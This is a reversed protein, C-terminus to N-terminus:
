AFNEKRKATLWDAKAFLDDFMKIWTRGAQHLEASWTATRKTHPRYTLRGVGVMQALPKTKLVPCFYQFGENEAAAALMSPLCMERAARDAAEGIEQEIPDEAPGGVGYAHIPEGIDNMHNVDAFEFIHPVFSLLGLNMLMCVSAWIPRQDDPTAMKRVRHALLPGEWSHVKHIIKFGYIIYAGQEGVKTRDFEERLFRPHIGGDDRLNQALYLDIFLRLTWTCGASRVRQLPSEEGASTGTVISNPLWILDDRSADTAPEPLRYKGQDNRLLFRQCLSEACEHWDKVEPLSQGKKAHSLISKEMWSLKRPKALQFGVLELWTALEYRPKASMHNEAHRIFGEALLSEIAGKAHEWGLGAYTMVAKTSWSTVKNTHGTGCALVLFAAAPNMGVATVKAWTRKDLQFFGSRSDTSSMVTATM